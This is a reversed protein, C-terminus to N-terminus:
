AAQDKQLLAELKATIKHKKTYVTKLSIQMRESVEEAGLGEAFYLEVFQRDRESLQRMIGAAIAARQNLATQEFPSIDSTEFVESEPMPECVSDRKIRRLYDYTANSALMGIWTSLRCGKAPDFSRLKKCDKQLLELCFRAYIEEV